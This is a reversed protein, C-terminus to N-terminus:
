RRRYKPQWRSLFEVSVCNLEQASETFIECSSSRMETRCPVQQLSHSSFLAKGIDIEPNDFTITPILLEDEPTFQDKIRARFRGTNRTGVQLRLLTAKGSHVTSENQDKIVPPTLVFGSYFPIGICIPGDPQNSALQFRGGGLHTAGVDEGQLDGSGRVLRVKDFFDPSFELLSNALVSGALNVEANQANATFYIDLYPRVNGDAQVASARPDISCYLLRGNQLFLVFLLDQAFYVTAIDYEFTWQHWAQQAKTDGDWYYEHVYLSRNDETSLFVAVNAVSSSVAARCRGPMYRPLHPTSDLSVYQSDTYSSPLMEMFGFFDESRPTPYLLTRGISIPCCTTDTDYTSTLVVTATSSTIATNGSPIVAQYAQSFLILDKNFPVAWEYAASTNMGSGIEIADSPVVTTVTSRFFRRPQNSESLSVMPGSLLVLRGQYSSIGTIGYQMWEHLPNNEDDGAKRGEFPSNDIVWSSGNWYLSIPCNTISTPSGYAGTEEWETTASNYRYYQASKGTGVRCIYGNASVPLRSPLFGVNSVSSNKSAVIYSTGIPSNVTIGNNRTLYVFAGDRDVFLGGINQAAIQDALQQAIYEPTARSADDVGTGNPTTYSATFSWSGNDFGVTVTYTRSFAGSVIYFFGANNPNFGSYNIQIQPVKERNLIFFENGVTAVRINNANQAICYGGTDLLAEQELNENLVFIAGARTCIIVHVRTGAIDTFFARISNCNANPMQLTKRLQAGPRRRLNTVPDSLMNVQASLQGPLREEPIQQSVGQLLSKYASEYTPM